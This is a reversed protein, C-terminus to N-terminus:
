KKKYRLGEIMETTRLLALESDFTLQLKQCKSYMHGSILMLNKHVITYEPINDGREIELSFSFTVMNSPM